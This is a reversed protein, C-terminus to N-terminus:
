SKPHLVNQSLRKRLDSLLYVTWSKPTVEYRPYFKINDQSEVKIFM